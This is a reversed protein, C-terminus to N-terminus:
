PGVLHIELSNLKIKYLEQLAHVVKATPFPCIYCRDEFATFFLSQSNVKSGPLARSLGGAHLETRARDGLRVWVLVLGFCVGM